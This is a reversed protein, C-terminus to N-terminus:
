VIGNVMKTVKVKNELDCWCKSIDFKSWFLTETHNRKFLPILSFNIYQIMTAFHLTPLIKTVKVKNEFDGDKLNFFATSLMRKQARDESGTPGGPPNGFKCLYM